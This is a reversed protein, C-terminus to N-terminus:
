CFDFDFEYQGFVDEYGNISFLLNGKNDTCTIEIIVVVKNPKYAAVYAFSDVQRETKNIPYQLYLSRDNGTGNIHSSSISM